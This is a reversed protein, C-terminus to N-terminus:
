RVQGPGAHGEQRQSETLANWIHSKQEGCRSFIGEMFGGLTHHHTGAAGPVQDRLRLNVWHESDTAESSPPGM